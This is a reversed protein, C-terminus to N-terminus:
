KKQFSEPRKGKFHEGLVDSQTKSQEDIASDDSSCGSCVSVLFLSMWALFAPRICSRWYKFAMM